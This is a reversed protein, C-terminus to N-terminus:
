IVISLFLLAVHHDSVRQYHDSKNSKAHKNIENYVHSSMFQRSSFDNIISISSLYISLLYRLMHDINHVAYILLQHLSQMSNNSAHCHKSM